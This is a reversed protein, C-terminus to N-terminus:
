FDVPRARMVLVIYTRHLRIVIKLSGALSFRINVGVVGVFSREQDCIRGPLSEGWHSHRRRAPLFTRLRGRHSILRPYKVFM